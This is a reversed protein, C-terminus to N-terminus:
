LVGYQKLLTEADEDSDLPIDDSVGSIDVTNGANRIRVIGLDPVLFDYDDKDTMNEQYIPADGGEFRIFDIVQWDDDIGIVAERMEDSENPSGLCKGHYISM